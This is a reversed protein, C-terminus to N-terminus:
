SLSPSNNRRMQGFQQFTRLSQGVQILRQSVQGVRPILPQRRQQPVQVAPRFFNPRLVGLLESHVGQIAFRERRTKRRPVGLRLLYRENSLRDRM